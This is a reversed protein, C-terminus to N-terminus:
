SIEELKRLFHALELLKNSDKKETETHILRDFDSEPLKNLDLDTFMIRIGVHTEKSGAERYWDLKFDM